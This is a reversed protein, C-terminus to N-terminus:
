CLLAIMDRPGSVAAGQKRASCIARRYVEAAAAAVREDGHWGPQEVVAQLAVGAEELIRVVPLQPTGEGGEMAAAGGHALFRLASAVLQLEEALLARAAASPVAPMAAGSHVSGNPTSAGSGGAPHGGQVLATAHSAFPQTLSAAADQLHPSPLGAVLRALGEVVLQKDAMSLGGAGNSAGLQQQQELLPRAAAILAAM